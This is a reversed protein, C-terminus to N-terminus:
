CNPPRDCEGEPEDVDPDDVEMDANAEFDERNTFTDVDKHAHHYFVLKNEELNREEPKLNFIEKIPRPTVSDSPPVAANVDVVYPLKQTWRCLTDRDVQFTTAAHTNNHRMSDYRVIDRQLMNYSAYKKRPQSAASTSPAMLSAATSPPQDCAHNQSSLHDQCFGLGCVECCLAYTCDCGPEDCALDAVEFVEDDQSRANTVVRYVVSAPRKGKHYSM